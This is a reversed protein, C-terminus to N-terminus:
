IVDQCALGSLHVSSRPLPLINVPVSKTLLQLFIPRKHRAFFLFLFLLGLVLLDQVSLSDWMEFLCEVQKAIKAIVSEDAMMGLHNMLSPHIGILLNRKKKKPQEM